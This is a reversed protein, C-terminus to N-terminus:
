QPTCIVVVGNAAGQQQLQLAEEQTLNKKKFNQDDVTATCTFKGPADALAPLATFVMLAAMVTAAVLVMVRKNLM